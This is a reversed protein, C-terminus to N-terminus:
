KKLEKFIKELADVKHKINLSERNKLLIESMKQIREPHEMLDNLASAMQEPSPGDALVYSGEPLIEKM